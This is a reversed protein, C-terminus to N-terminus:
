PTRLDHGEIGSPYLAAVSVYAERIEEILKEELETDNRYFLTRWNRIDFELLTGKRATQIVRKGKGRAYGLEFYVNRPNLTLDAIVIDAREIEAMIQQSIEYDGELLDIRRLLLPLKTFEVAREMGRYYDVIAPEEEEHFSMAVFVTMERGRLAVATSSTGFDVAIIDQYERKFVQGESTIVPSFHSPVQDVVAYVLTKNDAQLSGTEVPQPLLSNGLKTLRQIAIEVEAPSLGLVKGDDDVGLFLVGGASNAFGALARAIVSDPPLSQKFEVRDSEGQAIMALLNQRTAKLCM